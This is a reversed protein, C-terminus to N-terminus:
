MNHNGLWILTVAEAFANATKALRANSFASQAGNARFEPRVWEQVAPWIRQLKARLFSGLGEEIWREESVRFAKKFRALRIQEPVKGTMAARVVWKGYGNRLKLSPRLALGLEVVRYDLFPLRSEVSHAMSNRDEYRLLTPLSLAMVDKSQRFWEEQCREIGMSLTVSPLQVVSPLGQGNFYRGRHRWYQRLSVNESMIMPLLSMAFAASSFVQGQRALQELHFLQYKRYGMFVEDGGQGGLIVKFGHQKAAAYVFNQAIVSGGAFPADQALLTEGFSEILEKSTPWIYHANIRSSRALSQVLPGESDRAKPHGFSFGTVDPHFESLLIAVSSSDLGGSLSVALPVDARLRLRVADALVDHVASILEKESKGDINKATEHVRENLDYYCQSQVQLEREGLDVTLFHGPRVAQLGEFACSADGCDYIYYHLGRACYALDPRLRLERALPSMMSGFTLSSPMCFYYLPKVGFRDRVLWVRRQQRDLLAFAFMGNFRDFAREGWSKFSELIVETDSKTLFRHGRAELEQQLELYNYIEGNYVIVYRGSHDWMPQNADANLDIVSLRNHGLIASWDGVEVSEIKQNDPGRRFQAKVINEIMTLSRSAPQRSIIGSIGCMRKIWASPVLAEGRHRKDVGPNFAHMRAAHRMTRALLGGSLRVKRTRLPIEM